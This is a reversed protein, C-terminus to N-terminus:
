CQMKRKYSLYTVTTAGSLMTAFGGFVAGPPMHELLVCALLWTLLGVLIVGETLLFWTGLSVPGLVLFQQKSNM